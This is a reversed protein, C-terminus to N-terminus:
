AVAAVEFAFRTHVSQRAPDNEAVIVSEVDVPVIRVAHGVTEVM